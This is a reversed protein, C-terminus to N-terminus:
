INFWFRGLLDQRILFLISYNMQIFMVLFMSDKKLFINNKSKYIKNNDLMFLCM